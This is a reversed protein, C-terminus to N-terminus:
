PTKQLEHCMTAYIYVSYLLVFFFDDDSHWLSRSHWLQELLIIVELM